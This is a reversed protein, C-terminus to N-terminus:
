TTIDRGCESEAVALWGLVAAVIVTMRPSVGVFSATTEVVALGLIGVGVALGAARVIAEPHDRWVRVGATIGAVMLWAYGVVGALGLKLWYWFAVVHTYLRGDPHELVLTHRAKWPVAVGIGAIPHRRIEDLVNQQEQLRYRDDADKAATTPAVSRARELAVNRSDTGGGARFAIVVALAVVLGAPFLVARGRRGSAVLLCLGIGLITAVWFGRRYSLALTALALGAAAAAPVPPLIRGLLAVLLTLFLLLVLWLPSPEYYTLYTDGFPRGLGLGWAALGEVAKFVAFAGVVPLVGAATTHDRLTSAVVSPVTVLCFIGILEALVLIRDAGAGLATLVSVPVAATIVLLPLLFRGPLLRDFRGDRRALVAAGVAALVLLTSPAVPLGGISSYFRATQGFIGAADAEFLVATGLLTAVAAVPHSVLFAGACLAIVFLPLTPGVRAGGLGFVVGALAAVVAVGALRMSPLRTLQAVATM